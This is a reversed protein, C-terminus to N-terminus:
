PHPSRLADRVNRAQALLGVTEHGRVGRYVREGIFLLAILLYDLAGCWWAGLREDGHLAIGVGAVGLLALYIMWTLTLRRCYRVLAPTAEAGEMRAFRLVLPEGALLSGGFVAAIAFNIAVPPWYVAPVRLAVAAGALVVLLLLLVAIVRAGMGRAVAVLAAAVLVLSFVNAWTTWGHARMLWGLAPLVLVAIVVIGRM